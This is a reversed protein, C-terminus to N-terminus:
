AKILIKKLQKEVRERNCWKNLKNGKFWPEKLMKFYKQKNTDLEIIKDVVKKNDNYDHWNVFSKPNFDRSIESNGWYIPISNALMPHYIKETTYGVASSNEFAISFKYDKQYSIIEQRWNGFHRLITSSLNYNKMFTSEITQITPVLLRLFTSQNTRFQTSQIPPSNNMSKGPADIKKYKSLEKFFEVREKADKSYVYNCFKTKQKLISKPNKPNTLNKGAGYYAYLPLRIYNSAKNKPTINEEYDFGFGFDCKNMDVKCNEGTWFVKTGKFDISPMEKSVNSHTKKNKENFTAFFLVEAESQPVEKAKFKNFILNKLYADEKSERCWYKFAVKPSNAKSIVKLISVVSGV